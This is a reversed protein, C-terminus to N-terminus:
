NLFYNFGIELGLINYGSNPQQFDLNSVHGFNGGVYVATKKSTQYSCGLFLNEIFTFGKALRETETDIYSFGLSLSTRFNLNKYVKKQIIFGFELVYLHMTKLKTFRIRKELFDPIDSTVFWKNHLQHKLIQFQPQVALDFQFNKWTGLKYICQGKIINASYSYDVDDFLFNDETGFTYSIGIKYPLLKSKKTTQSFSTSIVFCFAFFLIYHTKYLSNLFMLQEETKQIIM